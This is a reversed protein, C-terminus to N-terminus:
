PLRSKYFVLHFTLFHASTIEMDNLLRMTSGTLSLNDWDTKTGFLMEGGM